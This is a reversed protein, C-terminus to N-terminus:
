KRKKQNDSTAAQHIEEVKEKGLPSIHIYHLQRILKKIEDLDQQMNEVEREAKRNVYYDRESKSRDRQAARNTSMLIIPAQIAALMSLVFNLLIFPYPDWQGLVLLYMNLLIWVGMFVFLGILFRWSGAFNTLWDAAKQGLPTKSSTQKVPKKPLNKKQAEPVPGLKVRKPKTLPIEPLKVM